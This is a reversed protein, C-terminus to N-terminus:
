KSSRQYYFLAVFIGIAVVALQMIVNKDFRVGWSGNVVGARKLFASNFYSQTSDLFEKAFRPVSSNSLADSKWGWLKRPPVTAHLELSQSIINEINLEDIIIKSLFGHVESMEPELALIQLRASILITTTIYIPMLPDTCLVLDYIRAAKDITHVNHGFWTIIWSICFHPLYEPISSLFRGLEPDKTSLLKSMLAIHGLTPDLTKAMFDHLWFVSLILLADKADKEGLVILLVSSVDHFGQYYNLGPCNEMASCIVRKLASQKMIRVIENNYQFQVFSRDVDVEIQHKATECLENKLSTTIIPDIHSLKLLLPWVQKRLSNRLFGGPSTGLNRLEVLNSTKIAEAIENVKDRYSSRRRNSTSM